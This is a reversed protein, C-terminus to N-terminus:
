KRLRGAWKQAAPPSGQLIDQDLLFFPQIARVQGEKDELVFYRYDFGQKITDEVIEYYRYDKRSNAFAQKWAPVLDIHRREAVHVTAHATVLRPSSLQDVM